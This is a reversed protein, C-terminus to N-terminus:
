RAVAVEIGLGRLEEVVDGNASEGTIVLDIEDISCLRVLEVRGLKSGDAVVVRRRAAYLMRRKMDAEPLNINTIGGSPDVGNCGVFGIEARVRELLIGGLPDVLSHQLPRLTGGTVVVSVRPHAPELMLAINLGNTFVVLDTLDTRSVLARAISATTTGVDLMLTDGSSVLHEVAHRGIAAKELSYTGITEEFPREHHREDTPSLAGGRVRTVRGTRALEDLDARVTVESIGFLESLDSVRVFQQEKVLSLM